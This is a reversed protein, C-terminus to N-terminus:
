KTSAGGTTTLSSGAVTSSADITTFGHIPNIDLVCNALGSNKDIECHQHPQCVVNLSGLPLTGISEINFYCHARGDQDVQCHEGQQCLVNTSADIPVSDTGGTGSITFGRTLPGTTSIQEKSGCLGSLM